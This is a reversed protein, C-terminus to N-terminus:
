WDSRPVGGILIYGSFIMDRGRRILLRYEGSGYKTQISEVLRPHGSWCFLYPKIARGAQDVRYGYVTQNPDDQDLVLWLRQWTADDSRM